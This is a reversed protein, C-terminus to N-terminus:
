RFVEADLEVRQGDVKGRGGGPVLQADGLRLQDAPELPHEVPQPDDHRSRGRLWTVGLFLGAGALLAAVGAVADLLWHNATAVVAAVVAPPYLVALITVARHRFAAAAAGAAWVSWAVHVSPMAAYQNSMSTMTDSSWSGWVRDRVVTDTFGLDPVLRPPALPYLWFGVLALVTTLALVSRAPRYLAPRAVYLAVLVGVTVVFHAAAYFYDTVLALGHRGAASLFDNFAAEVDMGLRQELRLLELANHRASDGPLTDRILTYAGYIVAVLMVEFAPHPRRRM